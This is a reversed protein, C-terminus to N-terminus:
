VPKFALFTKLNGQAGQHLYQVTLPTGIRITEPNNAAVGEIRAVIRAGEELEVVGICYPHRTNYGEKVMFPPGIAISTFAVLRGKGKMQAWEMKLSQCHPCLSRPPVFLRGCKKCRSAMLKEESLFQEYTIDSFPREETVKDGRLFPLRVPVGPEM